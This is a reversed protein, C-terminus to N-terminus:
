IHSPASNRFCLSLPVSGLNIRVAYMENQWESSSEFSLMFQRPRGQELSELLIQTSTYSYASFSAFIPSTCLCGGAGEEILDVIRSLVDDFEDERCPLADPRSGVHLLHLARLFIDDPLHSTDFQEELNTARERISALQRKAGRKQRRRLAAKSHPTPATLRKRGVKSKKRPTQMSATASRKKKSPTKMVDDVDDDVGDGREDDEAGGDVVGLEHDDDLEGAGEEHEYEDSSGGAESESLEPTHRSKLERAPIAKVQVNWADSDEPTSKLAQAHHKRWDLPYYM